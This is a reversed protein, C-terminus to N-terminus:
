KQGIYMKLHNHYLLDLQQNLLQPTKYDNDLSDSTM